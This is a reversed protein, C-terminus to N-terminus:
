KLEFECELVDESSSGIYVKFVGLEAKYALNRSYHMLMDETIEFGVTETCGPELSIKRFGKLEKVPRAVSGYLDRIYLQVTEEGKYKGANKVDVSVMLKQGPHMIGNSIRINSYSFETYSLGYGFPYLPKNPIDIYRSVFEVDSADDGKPRGTNYCDYHIPVQGVAYPFSMTLKGSPNVDGFLIDCIANGGETGPFWAELISPMNDKFWKLELPRGNFLVLVTPKGLKIVEEALRRQVEPVDIYGRSKAEGSMDYREGLALIVVEAKEAAKIAEAFGSTDGAIYDCGKAYLVKNTSGLRAALGEILSVAEEPRGEASWAGLIEKSAALPGIVAVSPVNQDLPLVEDNKLLVMSKAAANRAASRHESCLHLEQEKVPDAGRFPNDLLGLKEKLLLVHRVAEDILAEDVVGKEALQELYTVYEATMMEIDVGSSLARQAAESGDRAATHAIIESVAGWDSIVVGDFGWEERLIEKLLKPNASVPVYDYLNFSSMVLSCGEDVGAKYAPLYNERLRHESMDVTNYDRGGEAAGYAAFHKICSALTDEDKLDKGQFGRVYAKTMISNLLKDEGPSEMVRGWRADRVLDAMPAFTVHIGSVYAERAAISATKEVLEADWSCALALPIPFITRHGHIVDYMFLLPIGLRNRSLYDKQIEIVSAASVANLISGANYIAKDDIGLWKMPGTVPGAADVTDAQADKFLNPDIQFLQGIKERLTMSELLKEIREARSSNM